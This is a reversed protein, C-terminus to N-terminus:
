SWLRTQIAKVKEKAREKTMGRDVYEDILDKLTIEKDGYKVTANDNIQGIYRGGDEGASWLSDNLYPDSQYAEYKETLQDAVTGKGYQVLEDCIMKFQDESLDEYGGNELIYEGYYRGYKERYTSLMESNINGSELEEKVQEGNLALVKTEGNGSGAYITKYAEITLPNWGSAAILESPIEKGGQILTLIEAQANEATTEAEYRNRDYLDDEREAKGQKVIGLFAAKDLGVKSAREAFQPWAATGRYAAQYIEDQLAAYDAKRETEEDEAVSYDWKERAFKQEENLRQDSLRDRGEQYDRDYIGQAVSLADLKEQREADYMARATDELRTMWDGYAQQGAQAAYSSAIGGTRAAVKGVTDEMAKQGQGQYRKVLDAYSQGQTWDDYNMNTAEEAARLMSEKAPSKLEEDDKLWGLVNKGM